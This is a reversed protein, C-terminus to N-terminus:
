AEELRFANAFVDGKCMAVFAKQSETLLKGDQAWRDIVIGTVEDTADRSTKAVLDFAIIQRLQEVDESIHAIVEFRSMMTDEIYPERGRRTGRVVIFQEHISHPKALTFERVNEPPLVHQNM